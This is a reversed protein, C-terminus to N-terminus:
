TRPVFGTRIRIVAIRLGDDLLAPNLLASENADTLLQSCRVARIPEPM